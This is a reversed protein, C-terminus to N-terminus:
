GSSRLSSPDKRPPTEQRAMATDVARAALACCLLVATVALYAAKYGARSGIAFILIPATVSGASGITNCIGYLFSFDKKGIVSSAMVPFLVFTVGFCFGLTSVAAFSMAASRSLSFVLGAAAALLYDLIFLSSKRVPLRDSQGVILRGAVGGVSFSSLVRVADLEAIGSQRMFLVGYSTVGTLLLRGGFLLFAMMYFLPRRLWARGEGESEPATRQVRAENERRALWARGDKVEGVEAPSDKLIFFAAFVCPVQLAAFVLWCLMLSKRCVAEALLPMFLGGLSGSVLVISMPLAKNLEFWDNILHISSLLASVAAMGLIVYMGLYVTESLPFLWMSMYITFTTLGALVYVRRGGLRDLILGAPVSFLGVAAQYAAPAAGIASEHWGYAEVMKTTLYGGTYSPQTTLLMQCVCAVAAIIWGYFLTHKKNEM